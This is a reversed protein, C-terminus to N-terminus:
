RHLSVMAKTMKGVHHHGGGGGGGDGDGSPLPSAASLHSLLLLAACSAFVAMRLWSPSSAATTAGRRSTM